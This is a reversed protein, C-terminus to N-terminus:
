QCPCVIYGSLCVLGKEGHGAKQAATSDVRCQTMGAVGGGRAYRRPAGCALPLAAALPSGAVALGRGLLAAPACSGSASGKAAVSGFDRPVTSATRRALRDDLRVASGRAIRAPLADGAAHSLRLSSLSPSSLPVPGAGAAAHSDTPGARLRLVHQCQQAPLPASAPGASAPLVRVGCPDALPQRAAFTSPPSIRVVVSSM